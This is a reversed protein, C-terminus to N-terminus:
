GVQRDVPTRLSEDVAADAASSQGLLRTAEDLEGEMLARQVPKTLSMFFELAAETIRRKPWKTLESFENLRAFCENSLETAFPKDTM